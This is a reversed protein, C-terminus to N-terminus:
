NKFGKVQSAIETRHNEFIEDILFRRSIIGGSYYLNLNIKDNSSKKHRDIHIFSEGLEIVEMPFVTHTGPIIFHNDLVNDFRKVRFRELFNSQLYYKNYINNPIFLELKYDKELVNGINEITFLFKFHGITSGLIKQYGNEPHHIIPVGIKLIPIQTKFYTNRIEFEEMPISEFNYRKYYKNGAMHPGNLSEPIKILYVTERINSNNRIPFIKINEIRRSINSNIVQEIWEKTIHEDDVYSLSNAVHDQEEIGYIIIGGNSNAFSSVDKALETRQKSNKGLSEKRKFDLILSEEAKNEILSLIDQITYDDKDFFSNM